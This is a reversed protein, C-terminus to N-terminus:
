IRTFMLGNCKEPNSMIMNDCRSFVYIKRSGIGVANGDAWNRKESYFLNNGLFIIAVKCVFAFPLFIQYKGVIQLFREGKLYDVRICIEYGDAIIDTKKLWAINEDDGYKALMNAMRNMRIAEEYINDM